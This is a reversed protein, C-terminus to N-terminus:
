YLLMVTKLRIFIKNNIYYIFLLTLLASTNMAHMSWIHWMVYKDRPLFTHMAWASTDTCAGRALWIRTVTVCARLRNMDTLQVVTKEKKKWSLFPSINRRIKWPARKHSVPPNISVKLEIWNAYVWVVLRMEASYTTFCGRPTYVFCKCTIIM